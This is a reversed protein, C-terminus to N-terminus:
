TFTYPNPDTQMKNDTVRFHYWAKQQERNYMRVNSGIRIQDYAREIEQDPCFQLRWIRRYIQAQDSRANTNLSNPIGGDIKIVCMMAPMKILVCTNARWKVEYTRWRKM